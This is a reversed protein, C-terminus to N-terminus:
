IHLIVCVKDEFHFQINIFYKKASIGLDYALNIGNDEYNKKLAIKLPNTTFNQICSIKFLELSM